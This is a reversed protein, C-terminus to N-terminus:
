KGTLCLTLINDIEVNSLNYDEKYKKDLFTNSLNEINLIDEDSLKFDIGLLLMSKNYLPKGTLCLFLIAYDNEIESIPNLLIHGHTKDFNLVFKPSVFTELLTKIKIKYLVDNKILTRVYELANM